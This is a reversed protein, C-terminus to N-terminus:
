FGELGFPYRFLALNPWIHFRPQRAISIDGIMSFPASTIYDQLRCM